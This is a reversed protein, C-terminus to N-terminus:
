DRLRVKLIDLADRARAMAEESDDARVRVYGLRSFSDALGHLRNGDPMLQQADQVGAMARVADWGDIRALTGREDTALYRIAGSGHYIPGQRRGLLGPLAGIDVGLVQRLFLEAMDVGTADEVLRPIEDAADRLHTEIVVPGEPSLLVETHTPGTRIGLATLAAGVHEVLLAQEDPDIRAPVVHGLEVRTEQDSFKETIAFVHHRGAHTIVEVSFERGQFYREAMPPSPGVLPPDAEIARRYAPATEEPCRIVGIGSSAWGHSPKVVVPLGATRCFRELDALSSVAGFPVNELGSRNLRARMELKDHVVRVTEPAHFSLELDAAIAAARDQDLDAFSAITDIRWEAHLARAAHLWQKTPCTDNLVVMARNESPKQVHPLSSSRCIVVTEVQAGIRASVQRLQPQLESGGGVILLRHM